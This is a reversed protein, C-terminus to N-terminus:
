TILRGHTQPNSGADPERASPESGPAANSETDGERETGGRSESQREFIFLCKFIFLYIFAHSQRGDAFPLLVFLAWGHSGGILVAGPVHPSPAPGSCRCGVRLVCHFCRMGRADGRRAGAAGSKGRRALTRMALGRAQGWLPLAVM